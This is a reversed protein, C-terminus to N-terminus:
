SPPLLPNEEGFSMQNDNESNPGARKEIDEM